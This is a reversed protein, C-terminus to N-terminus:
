ESCYKEEFEINGTKGNYTLYWFPPDYPVPIPEKYSFRKKSKTELIINPPIEGAFWYFYENYEFFGASKKAPIDWLSVEICYSLSDKKEFYIHFHRWSKSNRSNSIISNVYRNNKDFLITALNAIVTSDIQLESLAFSHTKQSMDPPIFKNNQAQSITASFVFILGIIIKDRM